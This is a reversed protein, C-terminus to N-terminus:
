TEEPAWVRLSPEMSCALETSSSAAVMASMEVLALCVAAAASSAPPNTLWAPACSPMLTSYTLSRFEAISFIDLDESSIELIMAAISFM